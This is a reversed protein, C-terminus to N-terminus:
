NTIFVSFEIQHIRKNTEEVCECEIGEVQQIAEALFGAELRFDVHFPANLRLVVSDSLLHFVFMKKDQKILDLTGWGLKEFLYVVDDLTTIEFKRALNRGMFYLIPETEQGLLDPLSVYRLIDYGAGPTHLEELHSLNLPQHKKSM